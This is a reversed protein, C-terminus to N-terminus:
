RFLKVGFDRWAVYAGFAILFVFGVTSGVEAVVVRANFCFEVFRKM